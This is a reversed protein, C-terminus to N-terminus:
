GDSVELLTSGITYAAKAQFASDALRVEEVPNSIFGLEVLVAPMKTGVLVRFRAEKDPDGDSSDLRGRMEPFAIRMNDWIATAIPDAETRGPSTWVEFGRAQSTEAANCHISVFIDADWNNAAACRHDLEIFRNSWRTLRAMHRESDAFLGAAMMSVALVIDSERTGAPGVAGPDEGGHGPDIMVRM